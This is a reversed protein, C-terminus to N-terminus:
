GMYGHEPHRRHESPHRRRHRLRGDSCSISTTVWQTGGGCFVAHSVSMAPRFSTRQVFRGSKLWIYHMHASSEHLVGSQIATGTASLQSYLELRTYCKFVARSPMFELYRMIYFLDMSFVESKLTWRRKMTLDSTKEISGNQKMFYLPTFIHGNGDQAEYMNPAHSLLKVEEM